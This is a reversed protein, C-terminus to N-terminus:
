RSATAAIDRRVLRRVYKSFDLEEEARLREEVRPWMETPMSVSKTINDGKPNGKQKRATKM